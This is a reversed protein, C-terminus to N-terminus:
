LTRISMNPEKKMLKELKFTALVSETHSVVRNENCRSSQLSSRRLIEILETRSNAEASAKTKQASPRIQSSYLQTSATKTHPNERQIMDSSGESVSMASKNRGDGREFIFSRVMGSGHKQQLPLSLNSGRRLFTSKSSVTRNGGILRMDSLASTKPKKRTDPVINLKKILSFVERSDKDEAPSLFAAKKESKEFLCQRVLSTETEEDDSSIYADDKDTFMHPIMEKVKRLNIRVLDTPALDEIAEGSYEETDQESEEDEEEEVMTKDLQKSGCKFRQLLKETGAADQKELWKQHLENRRETDIPNEEYQTAIMDKLEEDDENDEDEESDRFRLQDNDSDDEEEAEEDVFAKVPDGNPSSSLDASEQLCPDINEKDNDEEYDSFDDPPASGLKLNMALLSPALAEELPSKPTDDLLDDQSTSTQPVSFLDQTDDIPAQFEQKPEEDVAMNNSTDASFDRLGSEVNAPCSIADESALKTAKDDGGDKDAANKSEVNVMFEQSIDVYDDGEDYDDIFSTKNVKVSKKSVELKRRRIKDLVSSIPKQIIPVSKFAADRTERLLRQSEACLQKLQERRDKDTTRKPVVTSEFKDDESVSKVRKKKDKKEEFGDDSSRRRKESEEVRLDENEKVMEAVDRRDVGREDFEDSVSDCDLTWKAGYAEEEIHLGGVDSDLGNENEFREEFRIDSDAEELVQSNSKELDLTELNLEESDQTNSKGTDLTGFKPSKEDLTKAKKLRKFQRELVPSSPAETPSFSEFDNVSDM